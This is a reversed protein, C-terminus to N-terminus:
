ICTTFYFKIYDPGACTELKADLDVGPLGTVNCVAPIAVVKTVLVLKAGPIRVDLGLVVAGLAGLGICCDEFQLEFAGFLTSVTGLHMEGLM